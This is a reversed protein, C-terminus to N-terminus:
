PSVRAKGYVVDGVHRENRKYLALDTQTSRRSLGYASYGRKRRVSM